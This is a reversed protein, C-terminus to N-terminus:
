RLKFLNIAPANKKKSPKVPYVPQWQSNCPWAFQSPYELALVAEPSHQAIDDFFRFIKGTEEEWFRYPPDFFLYDITLLSNLKFNFVDTNVIKVTENFSKQASKCVKECNAKLSSIVQSDQELFVCTKANRSLAELGYAGTGAFCDLVVADQIAPGICNFIRERTFDTAPRVEGKQPVDLVIGRAAGGTIRM